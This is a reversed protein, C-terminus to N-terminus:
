TSLRQIAEAVLEDLSTGPIQVDKKLARFQTLADARHGAVEALSAQIYRRNLQRIQEGEPPDDADLWLYTQWFEDQPLATFSEVLENRFITGPRCCYVFVNRRRESDLPENAQRMSSVAKLIATRGGPADLNDYAALQYRRVLPREKGTAVATDFHRIAEPLSQHNQLMWNGLMANAYVNNPDTVLAAHLNDVATSGFEREAIHQNLWHAWGIHAQIDATQLAKTRVLAADLVPFIQDLLNSATVTTKEDERPPVRFDEVWHEVTQLQGDLAPRYHPDQKLVAAYTQVAQPYESQKVQAQALAIQADFDSNRHLRDSLTTFTGTVTGIFGIVATIGGIWALIVGWARRAPGEPNATPEM